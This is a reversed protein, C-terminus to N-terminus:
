GQMGGLVQEQTEKLIKASTHMKEVEEDSLIVDLTQQIGGKGLVRPLSLSVGYPSMGSLTVVSHSDNIISRVINSVAVGIGYYTAQKGAIIVGAAERVRREIEVEKEESWAKGLSKMFAPISLGAVSAQKWCLVSSDGHEGVVNAHIYRTGVGSERSLLDRFRATDLVTGTGLVLDPNPHLARTIDTMIDVPNAAIVVVANPAYKVVEPIISKFIAANRSLLNLRSEGPQQNVGAAIVVVASDKIDEYGGAHVRVGTSAAAGHSIDMAEARARAENVDVLILDTCSGMIATAYASCAGVFGAGIVSVKAM